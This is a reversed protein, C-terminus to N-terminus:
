RMLDEGPLADQNAIDRDYQWRRAGQVLGTCGTFFSCSAGIVNRPIIAWGYWRTYVTGNAMLAACNNMSINSAPRFLDAIGAIVITWKWMPAWFFITKPGAAHHYMDHIRGAPFRKNVIADM